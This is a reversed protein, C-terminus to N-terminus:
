GGTLYTYGRGAVKSPCTAAELKPRPSPLTIAGGQCPHRMQGPDGMEQDSFDGESKFSVNDLLVIGYEGREEKQGSSQTKISPKVLTQQTGGQVQSM